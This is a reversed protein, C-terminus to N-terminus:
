GCIFFLEFILTVNFLAKTECRLISRKVQRTLEMEMEQNIHCITYVSFLRIVSAVTVITLQM